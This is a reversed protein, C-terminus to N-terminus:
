LTNFYTYRLKCTFSTLINLNLKSQVTSLIEFYCQITSQSM